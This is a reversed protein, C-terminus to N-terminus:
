AHKVDKLIALVGDLDYNQCLHRLHEALVRAAPGLQSVQDLDATLRTVGRLEAAARLNRYLDDPL